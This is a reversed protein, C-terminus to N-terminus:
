PLQQRYWQLHERTIYDGGDKYTIVIEIGEPLEQLLQLGTMKRKPWKVIALTAESEAVTVCYRDPQPSKTYFYDFKGPETEVTIVYLNAKL